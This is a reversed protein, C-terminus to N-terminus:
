DFLLLSLPPEPIPTLKFVGDEAGGSTSSMYGAIEGRKNIAQAEVLRVGAPLNMVLSNLDQTGVGPTWLFARAGDYYTASGVVWGSDNIDYALSGGGPVIGGLDQLPQGTSKLVAYFEGAILKYGVAQGQNNIALAKSDAVGFLSTAATWSAGAPYWVCATYGTAGTLYGVITKAGNIGTARSELYGSPIGLDVGNEGKPKVYAHSYLGVYGLGVVDDTANIGLCQSNDGGLSAWLYGGASPVWVSAHDGTSDDHFFGAVNGSNNIGRARSENTGPPLVLNLDVMAQGPSKVFAHKEGGAAFSFGVVQGADNIGAEKNSFGPYAGNGGLTGLNEYRFRVAESPGALCCLTIWALGVVLAVQKKM